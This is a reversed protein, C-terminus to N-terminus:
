REIPTLAVTWSVKLTEPPFCVRENCAQYQLAGAITLTGKATALQRMAPTLTLAVDQTIRFPADFVQVKEKDPGFVFSKSAPFVASATKLNPSPDISLDVAIYGQQGPAYVHMGAGPIVDATLLLHHGPAAIADSQRTRVLLHQGTVENTGKPLLAPPTLQELISAATERETYAQEFSRSEIRGQTSIVFTGPHPIGATKGTAEKNLIGWATITRSGDDSLLPFTIGHADAFTKLTDV